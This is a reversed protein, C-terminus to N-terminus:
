VGKTFILQAKTTDEVEVKFGTSERVTCGLLAEKPIGAAKAQTPTVVNHTRLDVGLVDGMKAVQDIPVSWKLRGITETYQVGPMREGSMARAKIQAELGTYIYEIQSKARTVLAFLKGINETTIMGAQTSQLVAEYMGLGAALASPCTFRIECYKCHPGSHLEGTGNLASRTAEILRPVYSELAQLTLSWKRIPGDAHFGRPQVISLIIEKIHLKDKIVSRLHEIVGLAYIVLQLNNCVEVIGHGYKFDWVHLVGNAHDYLFSDCTGKLEPHINPCSVRAEMYATYGTAIEMDRLERVYLAAGEQMEGILQAPIGDKAYNVALEHAQTGEDAAPNPIEIPAIRQKALVSGPCNVWITAKSPAILSHSM